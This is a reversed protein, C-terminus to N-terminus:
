STTDYPDQSGKFFKPNPNKNRKNSGGIFTLPFCKLDPLQTLIHFNIYHGRLSGWRFCLGLHILSASTTLQSYPFKFYEMRQDQIKYFAHQSNRFKKMDLCLPLVHCNFGYYCLNLSFLMMSTIQILTGLDIRILHFMNYADYTEDAWLNELQDSM